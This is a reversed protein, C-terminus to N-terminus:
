GAPVKRRLLWAVGAIGSLASACLVALKSAEVLMPQHAFALNSIFISMTFGIGGLVGAGIMHHWAVGAPLECLGWRIVIWSFLVVGLPKGLVLGLIIGLGNHEGIGALLPADITIATNALAFLPLILLNVPTQLRHELRHSPSHTAPTRATFPIAFALLVGAISAHVGAHLFCYWMGIGGLLYPALSMVRGFRNIAIMVAWICLAGLVYGLAIEDSYATAILVIAGLDDIVAFAVVFVKLAPPIRSRLLGLAALAFAIDTAMPIGFGAQTPSGANLMLHIAAPAAMGGAAAFFPLLANKPASLEGVYIERELELGILLFFIAMLGDNVWHAASMGAIDLHWMSRYAEALGSNAIGLALMTCALLLVSASQGSRVFRAFM